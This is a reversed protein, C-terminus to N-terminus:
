SSPTVIPSDHGEGPVIAVGWGGEPTWYAVVDWKDLTEPPADPPVVIPHTPLPPWVSTPPPIVIPHEPKADPPWIGPLDPPIVIPHEPGGGPAIPHAPHGPSPWIGPPSPPPPIVIPHEPHLGPAFGPPLVIPHSPYPQDAPGGIDVYEPPRGGWFGLPPEGPGEGPGGPAIPHAPHRGGVPNIFALFGRGRAM